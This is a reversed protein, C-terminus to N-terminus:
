KDNEGDISFRKLFTEMAPTQATTAKAEIKGAAKARRNKKFQEYTTGPRSSRIKYEEELDDMESLWLSAMADSPCQWANPALSISGTSIGDPQCSRKFQQSFFRTLFKRLTAVIEAETCDSGFAYKAMRCLKKPTFGGHIFWYLFFDHLEYSGVIEETKQAIKGRHAPLLEPSVPTRLIDCLVTQLKRNQTNDAVYKVIARILTKTVGGNVGYMSIHDGNFTAWGLALESMDGTGIVLGSEMNAADMLLQTRERAQANEFAADFTKGDHGLDKFHQRVAKKIEVERLECGLAECLLTANNKTRETTGFCPMTYCLLDSHPRNEVDLARICVLAVLTSDLGGSIGLLLKKAKTHRLRKALGHAQIQLIEEARAEREIRKEPVFPETPYPREIRTERLLLDFPITDFAEKEKTGINNKIKQAALLETDLVSSCFGSAFPKAQAIMNGNEAIFNEGSYVTESTSEGSTSNAFVYGCCLRASQAVVATRRYESRGALEADAACNAIVTAGATVLRDSPTFPTFLDDGIECGLCFEPLRKARFLLNAGFPVDEGGIEVMSNREDAVAFWRAFKGQKTKPVIGLLHGNFMVAACDYLKGEKEFPLGVVAVIEWACRRVLNVLTKKAAQQLKKQFFLDGCSCGTVALEPLVVLAANAEAAAKITEYIVTENFECDAVKIQPSVATAKIFGDKVPLLEKRSYEGTNVRRASVLQLM